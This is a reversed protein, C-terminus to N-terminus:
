ASIHNWTDIKMSSDSAITFTKTESLFTVSLSTDSFARINFNNANGSDHLISSALPLISVPKIWFEITM